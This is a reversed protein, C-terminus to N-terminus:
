NFSCSGGLLLYATSSVECAAEADSKKVNEYTTVTQEGNADTCTCTYDKKCSAFSVVVITALALTKLVNKM